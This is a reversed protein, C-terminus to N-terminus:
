TDRSSLFACFALICAIEVGRKEKSIGFKDKKLKVFM